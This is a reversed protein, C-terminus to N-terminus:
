MMQFNSTNYNNSYNPNGVLSELAAVRRELSNVQNNLTNVQTELSNGYTNPMTPSMMMGQNPMIPQQIPPVMMPPMVPVMGQQMQPYVPYPTANGGCNRDKKM